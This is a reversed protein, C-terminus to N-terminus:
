LQVVVGGGGKIHAFKNEWSHGGRRSALALTPDQGAEAEGGGRQSMLKAQAAAAQLRRRNVWLPYSRHRRSWGANTMKFVERLSYTPSEGSVVLFEMRELLDDADNLFFALLSPTIREFEEVWKSRTYCLQRLLDMTMHITASKVNLVIPYKRVLVKVEEHGLRLAKYLESYRQRTISAPLCLLFPNKCLLVMKEQPKLDLMSRASEIRALMDDWSQQLITPQKRLFFLVLEKGFYAAMREVLGTVADIDTGPNLSLFNNVRPIVRPSGLVQQCLAEVQLCLVDDARCPSICPTHAYKYTWATLPGAASLPEDDPYFPFM